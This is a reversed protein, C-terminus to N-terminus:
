ESDFGFLGKFSTAFTYVLKSLVFRIAIKKNYKRIGTPIFFHPVQM